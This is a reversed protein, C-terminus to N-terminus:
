QIVQSYLIMQIYLIVLNYMIVHSDLIVQSKTDGQQGTDGPQGTDGQQGPDRDQGTDGSQGTDRDLGSGSWHPQALHEGAMEVEQLSVQEVKGVQGTAVQGTELPISAQSLGPGCLLLCTIYFRGTALFSHTGKETKESLQGRPFLCNFYLCPQSNNTKLITKM